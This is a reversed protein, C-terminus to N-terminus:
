PYVYFGRGSKRGLLGGEVMRTLLAPPAYLPEKFEEYLAGAVLAIVDLGILDALRLPGMPHSCGLVMGRDIVEPEAHGSEVMRVASVVYPVLLANVTFGTRDVSRIAEKGLVGAVFSEARAMVAEETHLAPILEVLPIVQAPSFFHMGLVRGPRGTTAGLATISLSSTNSALVAEPDRVIGDLAAFLERKVARDERVTEVVLQRDALDTLATGFTVHGLAQERGQATLRGSTVARDLSATLRQRGREASAPSRAVIRVDRGARACVEAIGTGMVGCGVLGVREVDSGDAGM